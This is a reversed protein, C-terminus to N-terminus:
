LRAQVDAKFKEWDEPHTVFWLPCHKPGRDPRCMDYHRYVDSSSLSFKRCLQAVLAVQAEYTEPSYRGEADIVSVEIGITALNPNGMLKKHVLDSYLNPYWGSTYSIEEDPMLRLIDGKLGIVYHCSAEGKVGDRLMEFYDRTNKAPCPVGLWGSYHMVIGRTVSRNIGPRTHPSVSLFDDVIRLAATKM